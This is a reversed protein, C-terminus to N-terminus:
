QYKLLEVRYGPYPDVGGPSYNGSRRFGAILANSTADHRTAVVAGIDLDYLKEAGV